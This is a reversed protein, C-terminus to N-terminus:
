IVVLLFNILNELEKNLNMDTTLKRKRNTYLYIHIYTYRTKLIKYMKKYM